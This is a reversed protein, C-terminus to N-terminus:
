AGDPEKGGTPKAADRLAQWRQMRAAIVEEYGLRTPVYYPRPTELYSEPIFHEPSDHPYRYVGTPDSGHAKVHLNKLHEPM